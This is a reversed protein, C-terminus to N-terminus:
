PATNPQVNSVSGSTLKATARSRPRSTAPMPERVAAPGSTAAAHIVLTRTSLASAAAARTASAPPESTAPGISM